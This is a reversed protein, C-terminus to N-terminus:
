SNLTVWYTLWISALGGALLALGLVVGIGRVVRRGAENLTVGWSISFTWLGYSAHFAAALVFITYVACVWPIRFNDRVILLTATGFDECIATWSIETPHLNTIFTRTASIREKQLNEAAILSPTVARNIKRDVMKERKELFALLPAQSQPTILTVNFRPALTILGGDATVNVAFKAQPSSEIEQPSQLFRMSLVHVIVGVVIILATIRQWTFAHNRLYGTLAPASGDTAFSNFRAEFFYILGLIAHIAIPVALLFIEIINLYPLSHLFNVARIFSAGQEGILLASESNTLMHECLFLIFFLGAISHLRRFLFAKPLPRPHPLNVYPDDSM